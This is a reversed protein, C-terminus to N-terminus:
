QLLTNFNNSWSNSGRVPKCYNKEEEHDFLIQIDILIRDKIAKTEKYNRINKIATYNLEKKLRFINRTDKATNEEVSNLSEM